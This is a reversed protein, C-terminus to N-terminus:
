VGRGKKRSGMVAIVKEPTLTLAERFAVDFAQAVPPEGVKKRSFVGFKWPETAGAGIFKGAMCACFAAVLVLQGADWEGNTAVNEGAPPLFIRGRGSKGGTGTRVSVLQSAFTVGQVGATGNTAIVGTAEFPDSPTPHIRTAEVGTFSWESSVAPVLTDLICTKVANALNVLLQELTQPDNIVTNTAFHLVNNFQQGHMLGKIKVRAGAAWPAAM